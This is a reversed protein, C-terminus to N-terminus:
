ASGKEFRGADGLLGQWASGKPVAAFNFIGSDKAAGVDDLSVVATPARAPWIAFLSLGFEDMMARSIGHGADSREDEYLFMVNRRLLSAAGLLAEREAGEVDLKVVIDGDFPKVCEDLTTTEVYFEHLTDRKKTTGPSVTYGFHNKGFIELSKGAKSYVARHLVRFRGGNLEVNRNLAGLNSDALEVALTPHSGFDSGSVLVSWYGFNAGCDIFSYPVDRIAKLLHGIESEYARRLFFAKSWYNDGLPFAFVSDGNLRVSTMAGDSRLSRVFASAYKFVGRGMTRGALSLGRELMRDFGGLGSDIDYPLAMGTM